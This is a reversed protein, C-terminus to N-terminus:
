GSGTRPCVIGEQHFQGCTRCTSFYPYRESDDAVAMDQDVGALDRYAGEAVRVYNETKDKTGLLWDFTARWHEHGLNRKLGRLLTSRRIENITSLWYDRDPKKRLAEAALHRRGESLDRVRPCEAPAHENWVEVLAKPSPWTPEHGEEAAGEPEKEQDQQEHEQEQEQEHEQSRLGESPAQLPSAIGNHLHFATAYKMQFERAFRTAQVTRLDRVIGPIQKDGPRLSEAIQFRAMEHVFVHESAADYTAFRLEALRALARRAAQASMGIEHCLTPLPLYFVGIMNASPCTILYLAVIQVDRGAARIARGTTGTWFQPAVKAYRRM